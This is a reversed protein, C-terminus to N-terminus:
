LTFMMLSLSMMQRLCVDNLFVVKTRYVFTTKKNTSRIPNSGVVGVIRIYHAGLQAVPGDPYLSIIAVKPGNTLDGSRSIKSKERPFIGFKPSSMRLFYAIISDTGLVSAYSLQNSRM